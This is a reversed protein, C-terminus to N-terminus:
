LSVSFARGKLEFRELSLQRLGDTMIRDTIPSKMDCEIKLVKLALIICCLLLLRFDVKSVMEFASCIRMPMKIGQFEQIGPFFVDDDLRGFFKLDFKALRGNKGFVKFFRTMERENGSSRNLSV